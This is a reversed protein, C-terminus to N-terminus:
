SGSPIPIRLKTCIARATFKKIEAHRPVAQIEGNRPNQWISHSGGERALQCGHTRLHALLAARKM